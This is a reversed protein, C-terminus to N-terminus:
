RRSNFSNENDAVAFVMYSAMANEASFAVGGHTRTIIYGSPEQSHYDWEFEGNTANLCTIIASASTVVLHKGDPTLFVGNGQLIASSEIGDSSVQFTWSEVPDKLLDTLQSTGAVLSPNTTPASAAVTPTETSALNPSEQSAEDDGDGSVLVIIIAILGVLVLFLMVIYAAIFIRKQRKARSLENGQMEVLPLSRTAEGGKQVACPRKTAAQEEDDLSDIIADENADQDVYFRKEEKPSVAVPSLVDAKEKYGSALADPSKKNLDTEKPSLPPLPLAGDDDAVDEQPRKMATYHKEM